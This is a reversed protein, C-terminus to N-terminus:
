SRKYLPKPKVTAGRVKGRVDIELRTGEPAMGAPVYGMGIGVGLSPSMTGSTVEGGGAIPNGERPIGDEVTFAVLKERPGEERVARIADAGIFGTDGKVAWGLGAEIPGRAESLDNGYLHFCVELRLTDRAGLGAPTAGREVLGDWVAPADAPKLLLEVGDEGTYGTGAILADAGFVTGRTIRMREPLGKGVIERARPGQVALMAFDDISDRLEVDFGKAHERLWALDREHNAANTVTLWRDDALKYSFLDDLVGGDERCLLAYQAGGPPVKEVDNTVLHQLFRTADPGVTEVEGMHSVDFVGCGGRVALHEAKVGEYQVPMDWGAFPVMRAGAAVHRDHLPTRKLATGPAAPMPRTVTGAPEQTLIAEAISAGGGGSTVGARTCAARAYAPCRWPRMAKQTRSSPPGGTPSRRVVAKSDALTTLAMSSTAASRRAWSRGSVSTSRAVRPGITRMDSFPAASRVKSTTPARPRRATARTAPIRRKRTRSPRRNSARTVGLSWARSKRLRSARTGRRWRRYARARNRLTTSGCRQPMGWAAAGRPKRTYKLPPQRARSTTWAASSSRPPRRRATATMVSWSGLM